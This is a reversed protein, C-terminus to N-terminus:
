WWCRSRPLSWPLVVLLRLWNRGRYLFGPCASFCKLDLAISSPTSAVGRTSVGNTPIRRTPTNGSERTIRTCRESAPTAGRGRLLGNLPACRAAPRTVSRDIVRHRPENCSRALRKTRAVRPAGSPLSQPHPTSDIHEASWIAHASSHAGQGQAQTYPSRSSAVGVLPRLQSGGEGTAVGSPIVLPLAGGLQHAQGGAVM